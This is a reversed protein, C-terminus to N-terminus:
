FLNIFIMHLFQKITINIYEIEYEVMEENREFLLILKEISLYISQFAMSMCRVTQIDLILKNRNMSCANKLM